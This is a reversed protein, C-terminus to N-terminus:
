EALFRAGLYGKQKLMSEAIIGSHVAMVLATSALMLYSYVTHSDAMATMCGAVALLSFLLTRFPRSISFSYGAMFYWALMSVIVALLNWFYNEMVPDSAQEHYIRILWVCCCLAPLMACISYDGTKLGRYERVGTVLMGVGGLVMAGGLLLLTLEALGSKGSVRLVAFRAAFDPIVLIGSVLYSLGALVNSVMVATSSSSTSVEQPNCGHSVLAAIGALLIITAFTFLKLVLLAPASTIALGTDTEFATLLAVRRLSFGVIGLLIAVAPILYKRM